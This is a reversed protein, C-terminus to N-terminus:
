QKQTDPGVTNGRNKIEVEMAKNKDWGMKNNSEEVQWLAGRRHARFKLVPRLNRLRRLRKVAYTGGEKLPVQKDNKLTSDVSIAKM